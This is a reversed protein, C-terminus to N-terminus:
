INKVWGSHIWGPEDALKLWLGNGDLVTVQSRYPLKKMVRSTSNPEIRVRLGLLAMIRVERTPTPDVPPDVPPNGGVWALFDGRELRSINIDVKKSCVEPMEVRSSIQWVDWTNTTNPLVPNATQLIVPINALREKTTPGFAWSLYEALWLPYRGVIGRLSPCYRDIFWKGTYIGVLGPKFNAQIATLFASALNFQKSDSVVPVQSMPIRNFTADYWLDWDAWWQEIDVWVYVPKYQDIAERFLDVQRQVTSTPDFWHYLGLALGSENTLRAHRDLLADRGYGMTAKVIVSTGGWDRFVAPNFDPQYKSVDAIIARTM